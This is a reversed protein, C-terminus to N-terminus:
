SLAHDNNVNALDKKDGNSNENEAPCNQHAIENDDLAEIIKTIFRPQPENDRDYLYGNENLASPVPFNASQGTFAGNTGSGNAEEDIADLDTQIMLARRVSEIYDAEEQIGSLGGPTELVADGAGFVQMLADHDQIQVSGSDSSNSSSDCGEVDSLDTSSDHNRLAIGDSGVAFPRVDSKEHYDEQLSISRYYNPSASSLHLFYDPKVDNRTSNSRTRPSALFTNSVVPVPAHPITVKTKKVIPHAEQTISSSTCGDRECIDDFDPPVKETDGDVSNLDISHLDSDEREEVEDQSGVGSRRSNTANYGERKNEVTVLNEFEEAMNLIDSIAGSIEGILHVLAAFGCHKLDGFDRDGDEETDFIFCTAIGNIDMSHLEILLASYVHFIQSICAEFRKLFTPARFPSLENAESVKGCSPVRVQQGYEEGNELGELYESGVSDCSSRIVRKTPSLRNMRAEAYAAVHDVLTQHGATTSRNDQDENNRNKEDTQELSMTKKTEDVAASAAGHCVDKGRDSISKM